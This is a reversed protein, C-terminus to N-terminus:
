SDRLWVQIGEDLAALASNLTECDQTEYALGGEYLARAVFGHHDQVGIEIWGQASVWEAVTPFAREIDPQQAVATGEQKRHAGTCKGRTITAPCPNKRCADM